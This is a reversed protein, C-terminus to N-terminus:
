KNSNRLNKRIESIRNCFAKKTTTHERGNDRWYISDEDIEQIIGGGELIRSLVEDPGCDRDRLTAEAARYLASQGRGKPKFEHGKVALATLHEALASDGAAVKFADSDETTGDGFKWRVVLRPAPKKKDSM